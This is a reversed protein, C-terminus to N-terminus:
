TGLLLCWRGVPHTHSHTSGLSKVTISVCSFGGCFGVFVCCCVGPAPARMAVRASGQTMRVCHMIHAYMSSALWRADGQHLANAHAYMCIQMCVYQFSSPSSGPDGQRLAHHTCVHMCFCVCTSVLVAGQRPPWVFIFIIIVFIIIVIIIIIIIIISYCWCM